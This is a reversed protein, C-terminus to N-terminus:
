VEDVTFIDQSDNFFATEVEGYESFKAKIEELLGLWPVNKVMLYWSELAPTYVRLSVEKGKKYTPDSIKKIM